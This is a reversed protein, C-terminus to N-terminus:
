ENQMGLDRYMDFRLWLPSPVFTRDISQVPGPDQSMICMSMCLTQPMLPELDESRAPTTVATLQLWACLFPPFSLM